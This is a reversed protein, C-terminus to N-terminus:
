VSSRRRGSGTEALEARESRHEGGRWTVKHITVILAGVLLTALNFVLALSFSQRAALSVTKGAADDVRAGARGAGCSWGSGVAIQAAARATCASFDTSIRRADTESTGAAVSDRLMTAARDASLTQVRGALVASFIIIVIAQSLSVTVAQVTNFVGAATAALDKSVYRLLMEYLPVTILAQGVGLVAFGPALQAVRLGQGATSIVFALLTLGVAMLGMGLVIVWEDMRSKLHTVLASAAVFGLGFFLLTLGTQLPTFATVTQLYLTSLLFFGAPGLFFVLILLLGLKFHYDRALDPAIVPSGGRAAVRREVTVLVAAGALAAAVCAYSWWPWGAQRGQILGYLVLAVVAGLVAVGALDLGESRPPRSERLWLVTGLMSLLAIPVNVFFVLRWGLHAIDSGILLGGLILGSVWSLGMMIGYIAFARERRRGSFAAHISGIGQPTVLAASCGQLVRGLVLIAGSGAVGCLLSALTLGAMGILFVRKRGFLDGVRGGSVLGVAYAGLYSVSILQLQSVTTSLERQISPLAVNVIFFDMQAVFVGLLM